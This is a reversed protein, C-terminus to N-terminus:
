RQASIFKELCFAANGGLSRDNRTAHRESYGAVHRETEAADKGLQQGIQDAAKRARDFLELEDQYIVDPKGELHPRMAACEMAEHWGREDISFGEINPVPSQVLSALSLLLTLFM